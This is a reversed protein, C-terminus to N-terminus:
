ALQLRSLLTSDILTMFEVKAQELAEWCQVPVTQGDGVGMIDNTPHCISVHGAGQLWTPPCFSSGAHSHLQKSTTGPLAPQPEALQVISM